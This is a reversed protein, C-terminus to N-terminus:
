DGTYLQPLRKKLNAVKPADHIVIYPQKPHRAAYDQHYSEALYFKQLPAAETVIPRRHLKADNVQKIYAEVVRQEDSNAFFVASRYQPGVDPGQRDLQTPDHAVSFFVKLLQGYSVQSPDYIVRVSEAHQTQGGSVVRYDATSESGGAYGSVVDKVGKVHEFVAEVGWFCGGAFVASRPDADAPAPLDILPDPILPIDASSPACAAIAAVLAALLSARPTLVTLRRIQSM